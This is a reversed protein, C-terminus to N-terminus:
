YTPHGHKSSRRFTKVGNDESSRFAFVDRTLKVIPCYMTYNSSVLQPAMTDVRLCIMNNTVWWYGTAYLQNTIGCTIVLAHSTLIHNTMIVSEETLLAGDKIRGQCIWTGILKNETESQSLECSSILM